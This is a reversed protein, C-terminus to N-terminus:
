PRYEVDRMHLFALSLHCLHKRLVLELAKGDKAYGLSLWSYDGTLKVNITPSVKNQREHVSHM